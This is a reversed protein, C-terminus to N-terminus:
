SSPASLPRHPQVPLAVRHQFHAFRLSFHELFPSTFRCLRTMEDVLTLRHYVEDTPICFYRKFDVGFPGLPADIGLVAAPISALYHYREDQYTEVRGWADSNLRGGHQPRFLHAEQVECFMVCPIKNYEAGEPQRANFDQELDCDQSVVIAYPYQIPAIAPKDTGITHIDMRVHVVNALIEGQRLSGDVDLREYIAVENPV